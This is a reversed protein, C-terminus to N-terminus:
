PMTANFASTHSKKSPAPVSGSSEPETQRSPRTGPSNSCVIGAPVPNSIPGAVTQTTPSVEVQCVTTVEINMCPLQNWMMPLM